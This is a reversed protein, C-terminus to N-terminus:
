FIFNKLFQFFNPSFSKCGFIFFNPIFFVFPAVEPSGPPNAAPPSCGLSSGASAPSLESHLSCRREGRIPYAPPGGRLRATAAAGGGARRRAATRIASRGSGWRGTAMSDSSRSSLSLAGSSPSLSHPPDRRRFLHPPTM